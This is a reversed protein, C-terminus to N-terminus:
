RTWKKLEARADSPKLADVEADIRHATDAAKKDAAAQKTAQEKRGAAKQKAGYGLFAVLAAGALALYPWLSGLLGTIVSM